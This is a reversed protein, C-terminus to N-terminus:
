TTASGDAHELEHADARLELKYEDPGSTSWCCHECNYYFRGEDEYVGGLVTGDGLTKM